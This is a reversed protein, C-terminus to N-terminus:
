AAMAPKPEAAADALDLSILCASTSDVAHCRDIRGDAAIGFRRLTEVVVALYFDCLPM